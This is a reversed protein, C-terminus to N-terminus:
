NDNKEKKLLNEIVLTFIAKENPEILINKFTIAKRKPNKLYETTKEKLYKFERGDSNNLLSKIFTIFLDVKVEPTIESIYNANPYHNLFIEIIGDRPINLASDIPSSALVKIEVNKKSSNLYYNIESSSNLLKGLKRYKELIHIVNDNQIIGVFHYIIFQIFEALQKNNINTM